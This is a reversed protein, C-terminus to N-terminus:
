TGAGAAFSCKPQRCQSVPQAALYGHSGAPMEDASAAASVPHEHGDGRGSTGALMQCEATACRQSFADRCATGVSCTGVAAAAAISSYQQIGPGSSGPRCTRDVSATHHDSPDTNQSYCAAYPQVRCSQAPSSRCPISKHDKAPAPASEPPMHAFATDWYGGSARRCSTSGVTSGAEAKNQSQENKEEQM